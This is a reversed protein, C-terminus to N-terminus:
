YRVLKVLAWQVARMLPTMGGQDYEDVRSPLHQALFCIRPRLWYYHAGHHKSYLATFIADSLLNYEGTQTDLMTLLPASGYSTVLKNWESLHEDTERESEKRYCMYNPVDHIEVFMAAAARKIIVAPLCTDVASLSGNVESLSGDVKQLSPDAVSSGSGSVSGSGSGASQMIQQMNFIHNSSLLLSKVVPERFSVFCLLLCLLYLFM